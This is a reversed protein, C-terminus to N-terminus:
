RQAKPEHSGGGLRMLEAALASRRGAADAWRNNQRRRWIADTWRPPRAWAEAIKALRRDAACLKRGLRNIQRERKQEMRREKAARDALRSASLAASKARKTLRAAETMENGYTKSM